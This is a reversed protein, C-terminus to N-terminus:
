TSSGKQFVTKLTNRVFAYADKRTLWVMPLPKEEKIQVKPLLDFLEQDSIEWPKAAQLDAAQLQAKEQRLRQVEAVLETCTDASCREFVRMEWQAKEVLETPYSM